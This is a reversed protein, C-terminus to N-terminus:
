DRLLQFHIAMLTDLVGNDIGYFDSRMVLPLVSNMADLEAQVLGM